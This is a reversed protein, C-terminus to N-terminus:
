LALLKEVLTGPQSRSAASRYLGEGNRTNDEDESYDEESSGKGGGGSVASSNTSGLHNNDSHPDPSNSLAEDIEALSNECSTGFDTIAQQLEDITMQHAM